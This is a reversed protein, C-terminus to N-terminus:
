RSIRLVGRHSWNSWTKALICFNGNSSHRIQRWTVVLNTTTPIYHIVQIPNILILWPNQLPHFFIIIHLSSWNNTVIVLSSLINLSNHCHHHLHWLLKIAVVLHNVLLDFHLVVTSIMRTKYSTSLDIPILPTECDVSNQTATFLLSAYFFLITQVLDLPDWEDTWQYVKPVMGVCLSFCASPKQHMNTLNYFYWHSEAYLFGIVRRVYLSMSKESEMVICWVM